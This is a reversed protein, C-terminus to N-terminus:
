NAQSQKPQRSPQFWGRGFGPRGKGSLIQDVEEQTIKGDAVAKGVIAKTDSQLKEM